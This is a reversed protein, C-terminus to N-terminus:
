AKVTERERTHPASQPALVDPEARACTTQQSFLVPGVEGLQEIFEVRMARGIRGVSAM